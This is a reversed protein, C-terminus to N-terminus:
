NVVDAMKFKFIAEREQAMTVNCWSTRWAFYFLHAINLTFRINPNETDSLQMKYKVVDAMKFTLMTPVMNLWALKVGVQTGPCTLCVLM